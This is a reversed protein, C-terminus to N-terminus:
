RRPLLMDFCLSQCGFVHAQFAASPSAVTLYVRAVSGLRCYSSTVSVGRPFLASHAAHPAFRAAAVTASHAGYRGIRMQLDFKQRVDEDRILAYAAQTWGPCHQAESQPSSEVDEYGM